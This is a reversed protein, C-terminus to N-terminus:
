TVFLSLRPEGKCALLDIVCFIFSMRSQATRFRPCFKSMDNTLGSPPLQANKKCVISGPPKVHKPVALGDNAPM